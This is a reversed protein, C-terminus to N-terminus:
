HEHGDSHGHDHPDVTTSHHDTLGDKEEIENGSEPHNHFEDKVPAQKIELPTIELNSHTESAGHGHSDSGHSHDHGEGTSAPLRMVGIGHRYVNEAGLYATMSLSATSLWLFLIFILGPKTKRSFLGWIAAFVWLGLTPLAWNKHITMAEHSLADHDVSNYAMLGTIVTVVSFAAGLWLNWRGAALLSQAHESNKLFCAASYFLAAVTLLAVSFHVFIPHYNPIIEM